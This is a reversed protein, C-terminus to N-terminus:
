LGRCCLEAPNNKLWLGAMAVPKHDRDFIEGTGLNSGGDFRFWQWLALTGKFASTGREGAGPIVTYNFKLDECIEAFPVGDTAAKGADSSAQMQDLLRNFMAQDVSQGYYWELTSQTNQITAIPLKKSAGILTYDTKPQPAPNGQDTQNAPGPQSLGAATAAGAAAAVAAGIAAGGVYPTVGGAAGAAGAEGAKAVDEVPDSPDTEQRPKEPDSSPSPSPSSTPMSSSAPTSSSVVSSSSMSSSSVSSSSSSQRAPCAPAVSPLDPVPPLPKEPEVYDLPVQGQDLPLPVPPPTALQEVPAKGLSFSVTTTGSMVSSQGEPLGAAAGYVIWKGVVVQGLPAEQASCISSLIVLLSTVFLISSLM